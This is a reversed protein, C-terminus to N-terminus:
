NAEWRVNHIENNVDDVSKSSKEGEGSKLGTPPICEEDECIAGAIANFYYGTCDDSPCSSCHAAKFEDISLFSFKEIEKIRQEDLEKTVDNIIEYNENIYKRTGVTQYDWKYNEKKHISVDSWLMTDLM